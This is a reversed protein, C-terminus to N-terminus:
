TTVKTTKATQSARDAYMVPYTLTSFATRVRSILSSLTELFFASLGIALFVLAVFFALFGSGM